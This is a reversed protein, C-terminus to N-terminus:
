EARIWITKPETYHRLAYEGLERGVGSLKMGGMPAQPGVMLACNVSVTGAQIARSVRMARGLDKTFVSGALGFSTDNALELAEEETHFSRACLVPGFVEETYVSADSEPNLFITPAVYTGKGEYEDGGVILEATQKGAEIYSRVKDYQSQDVLPGFTTTEDQPDGGLANNVHQFAVKLRELFKDIITDQIYIRSSAACVQGSNSTIGIISWFIATEIDADDFVISPSKGGLELTVRKLNSKASAEQIKRGTSTSGTFSIKDIKMHSAIAAGAAPDGPLIQFVGPPFGAAEILYGFALTGLPSKESPKIISTNGCALAPAAKWALFHLSGNWATVGACVGLPEQTVFKYFGDDPPFTDGKIKDAWGAYYRFVGAVMSIERKSASIPRGSALSEFYFIEDSYEEILDALRNLCRGRQSGTMKSWPGTSFAKKSIVVAHDIDTVSVSHLKIPIDSGDKPNKLCLQAGTGSVWKNDIFAQAPIDNITFLRTM